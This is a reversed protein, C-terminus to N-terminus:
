TNHKDTNVDAYEFGDQEVGKMLHLVLFFLQISYKPMHRRFTHMYSFSYWCPNIQIAM